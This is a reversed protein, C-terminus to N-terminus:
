FHKENWAALEDLAKTHPEYASKAADWRWSGTFTAIPPRGRKTECDEALKQVTRRVDVSIRTFAAGDPMVRVTTSESMAEPCSRSGLTLVNGIPSLGDSRALILMTADYSQSSNDHWNSALVLAGRRGLKRVYDGSFSVHQDGKVNVADVLRGTEDFLALPAFCDDPIELTVILHRRGALQVPRAGLNRLEIGDECRVWSDDAFGISRLPAITAASAASRTTTTEVIDPFLQRLLDLWTKGPLGPVAASFDDVPAPANSSGGFAVGTGALLFVLAALLGIVARRVRV